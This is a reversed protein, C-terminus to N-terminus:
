EGESRNNSSSYYVTENAHMSVTTALQNTECDSSCCDLPRIINTGDFAPGCQRPSLRYLAKQTLARLGLIRCYEISSEELADFRNLMGDLVAILTSFLERSHLPERSNICYEILKLYDEILRTSLNIVHKNHLSDQPNMQEYEELLSRLIREARRYDQDGTKLSGDFYDHDVEIPGGIMGATRRIEEGADDLVSQQVGKNARRVGLLSAVICTVSITCIIVEFVM